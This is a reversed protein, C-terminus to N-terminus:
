RKKKVTRRQRKEFKRGRVIVIDGEEIVTSPQPIVTLEGRLLVLV